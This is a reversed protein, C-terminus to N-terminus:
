ATGKEEILLQPYMYAKVGGVLGIIGEIELAHMASAAIQVIGGWKYHGTKVMLIGVFQLVSTVITAIFYLKLYPNRSLAGPESDYFIVEILVLCELIMLAIMVQAWILGKSPKM